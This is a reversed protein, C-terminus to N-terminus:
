RHASVIGIVLGRIVDGFFPCPRPVRDWAIRNAIGELKMIQDLSWAGQMGSTDPLVLHAGDEPDQSTSLLNDNLWVPRFDKTFPRLKSLAEFFDSGIQYLKDSDDTDLMKRVDPWGNILLLNTTLKRGNEFHFTVHNPNIEIGEPEEKIRLLENVAMAPLGFPHRVPYKLWHEVLVVNNTAFASNGAFLIGRSWPRSADDSMVPALLKIADLLNIVDLPEGHAQISPFPEASTDIYAKFDGSKVVLRGTETQHLSVTDDCLSIAHVFTEALPQVSLNCAIPASLNLCGNYSEIRGEHIRFHKLIPVLGKQAVAGRVFRLAELM